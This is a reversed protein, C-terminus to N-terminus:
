MWAVGGDHHQASHCAWFARAFHFMVNRESEYEHASEVPTSTLITAGLAAFSTQPTDEAITLAGESVMVAAAAAVEAAAAAAASAAVAM